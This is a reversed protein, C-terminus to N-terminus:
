LYQEIARLRSKAFRTAQPVTALLEKYTNQANEWDSTCEYEAALNEKAEIYNPNIKLATQFFPISMRHLRRRTYIIGIRNHAYLHNQNLELATKFLDLAKQTEGTDMYVTGLLAYANASPNRSLLKNLTAESKILKGAKSYAGALSFLAPECEPNNRLCKEFAKAAKDYMECEYYLEGLRLYTAVDEPEIASKKLSMKVFQKQREKAAARDRIYRHHHIPLGTEKNQLAGKDVYGIVENIIGKFRINNSNKFLRIQHSENFGSFGEGEGWESTGPRWNCTLTNTYNRIIFSYGDCDGNKLVERLAEYHRPSIMEDADLVLIWDSQANQISFNRARSFDEEWAFSFVRAGYKQAITITNDKSGTDVVIIENVLSNINSLCQELFREEDRTIMCLSITQGKTVDATDM